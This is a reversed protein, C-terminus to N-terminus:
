LSQNCQPSNNDDNCCSESDSSLLSDAINRNKLMQSKVIEEEKHALWWKRTKGFKGAYQADRRKDMDDFKHNMELIDEDNNNSM